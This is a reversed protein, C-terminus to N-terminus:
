SNVRMSQSPDLDVREGLIWRALEAGVHPNDLYGYLKHPNSQGSQTWFNYLAPRDVLRHLYGYDLMERYDDAVTKDHAIYDDEASLNIWNRLIRRPFRRSEPETADLLNARVGPEGLPNGLTLWLQVRPPDSGLAIFEPSRSLRWLADYAVVCGMSHGILCIDRRAKLARLLPREVRERMAAGVEPESFYANSDPSSHQVLIKNLGLPGAIRSAIAAVEDVYRRDKESALLQDYDDRTFAHSPRALSRAMSADYYGGPECPGWGHEADISTLWRNPKRHLVRNSLDGYYALDFSVEGRILQQAALHSARGVGHVLATQM